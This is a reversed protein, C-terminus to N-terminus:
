TAYLMEPDAVYRIMSEKGSYFRRDSVPCVKQFKKNKAIIKGDAIVIWYGTYGKLVDGSIGGWYENTARRMMDNRKRSSTRSKKSAAGGLKHGLKSMTHAMAGRKIFGDACRKPNGNHIRYTM